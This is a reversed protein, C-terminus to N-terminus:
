GEISATRSATPPQTARSATRRSTPINMRSAEAM